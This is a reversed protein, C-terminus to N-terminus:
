LQQIQELLVEESCILNSLLLPYCQQPNPLIKTQPSTKMM